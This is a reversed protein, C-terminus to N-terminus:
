NGTMPVAFNHGCLASYGQFTSSVFIETQQKTPLKWRKLFQDTEDLHESKPVCLQEYYDKIIVKIEM